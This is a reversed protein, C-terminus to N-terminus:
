VLGTQAVRHGYLALGADIKLITGTTCASFFESALFVAGRGIYSPDMSNGTLLAYPFPLPRGRDDLRVWGPAIGNVRIGHPALEAALEKVVMALAAKTSSYSPQRSLMWQHVSTIFIVTGKVRREMMAAVIRRTLYLPGFLNTEFMRRWEDLDLDKTGTTGKPIGANNVLIDIVLDRSKLWDCLADNDERRSVDSLRGDSPVGFSALEGSLAAIAGADIDTFYVEAGQRAMELAISRGINRGAGTVLARKGALFGPGTGSPGACETPVVKRSLRRQFIGSM